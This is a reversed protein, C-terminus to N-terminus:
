VEVGQPWPPQPRKLEGFYPRNRAMLVMNEFAALSDGEPPTFTKLFAASGDEFIFTPTGFIGKSVAEEHDMGIEALREPSDLDSEFKEMDLGARRAADVVAGRDRIDGREVFKFHQLELMYKDHSDYGQMRSAIGGRLSWLGRSVYDAGQEWAKWDSGEKSNVQELAFSRYNLELDDGLENKVRSLWIGAQRM